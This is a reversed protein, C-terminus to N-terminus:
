FYYNLMLCFSLSTMLSYYTYLTVNFGCYMYSVIAYLNVVKFCFILLLADKLINKGYDIRLIQITIKVFLAVFKFCSFMNEVKLSLM